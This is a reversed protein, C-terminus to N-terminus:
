GLAEDILEGFAAAANKASEATVALVDRHTLTKEERHVHSNSICSVGLVRMGLRRAERAEFVTSMGAADAGIEALTRAESPTEYAPGALCAYVGRKVPIGRATGISVFRETLAPDYVKERKAAAAGGTLFTLNVHDDIAMLDGPYLRRSIGGASNTVIAIRVGLRALLHLPMVMDEWSAGEYLHVRGQFAAARRAGLRGVILNGTHGEVTPMRFGPLSSRTFVAKNKMEPVIVHFGTGLILGAAPKERICDLVFEAARSVRESLDKETRGHCNM